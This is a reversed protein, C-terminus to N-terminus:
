NNFGVMRLNVKLVIVNSNYDSATTFIIRDYPYRLLNMYRKNRASIFGFYGRGYDFYRYNKLDINMNSKCPMLYRIHLINMNDIVISCSYRSLSFYCDVVIFILNLILGVVHERSSGTNVIVYLITFAVILYNNVPYFPKLKM